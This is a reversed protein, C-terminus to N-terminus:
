ENSEVDGNKKKIEWPFNPFAIGHVHCFTAQSDAASKWNEAEEGSLTAIEDEFELTVKQINKM